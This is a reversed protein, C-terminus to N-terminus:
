AYLREVVPRRCCYLFAPPTNRFTFGINVERFFQKLKGYSVLSLQLQIFVGNTHLVENISSCLRSFETKALTAIPIGSVLYDAKEILVSHMHFASVNHVTLRSDGISRLRNCFEENVEFVILRGDPQLSNLIEHTIVGTGAGIEVVTRARDFDIFQCIRKAVHRSSPVPSGVERWNKLFGKLFVLDGMKKVFRHSRLRYRKVTQVHQVVAAVAPKQRMWKGIAVDLPRKRRQKTNPINLDPM